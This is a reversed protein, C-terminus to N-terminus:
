SGSSSRRRNCCIPPRLSLMISLINLLAVARGPRSFRSFVLIPAAPYFPNVNDSSQRFFLVAVSRAFPAVCAPCQCGADKCTFCTGPRAAAVSGVGDPGFPLLPLLRQRTDPRYFGCRFGGNRSKSKLAKVTSFPSSNWDRPWRGSGCGGAGKVTFTGQNKNAKKRKLCSM